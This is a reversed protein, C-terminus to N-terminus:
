DDDIGEGFKVFLLATAILSVALAGVVALLDRILNIM